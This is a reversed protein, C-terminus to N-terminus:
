SFKKPINKLVRFDPFFGFDPFGIAPFFGFDPFNQLPYEHVESREAPPV